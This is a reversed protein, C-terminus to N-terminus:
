EFYFFLAKIAKGCKVTVTPDEVILLDLGLILTFRCRAQLLTHVYIKTLYINQGM